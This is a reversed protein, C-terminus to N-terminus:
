SDKLSKVAAWPFASAIYLVMHRLADRAHDSGVAWVGLEKLRPNPAFQKADGPSQEVFKIGKVACVARLLGILELSWPAPSKKGTQTTITFRECVVTDILSAGTYLDTLAWVYVAMTEMEGATWKTVWGGDGDQDLQLLAYGTALGPDFVAIRRM